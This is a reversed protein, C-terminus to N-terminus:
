GGDHALKGLYRALDPDPADFEVGVGFGNDQGSRVVRAAVRLPTEQNPLSIELVLRTDRERPLENPLYLGNASIATARRVHSEPELERVGLMIPWRRYARREEGTPSGVEQSM